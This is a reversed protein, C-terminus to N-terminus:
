LIMSSKLMHIRLSIAWFFFFQFVQNISNITVWLKPVFYTEAIKISRRSSCLAHTVNEPLSVFEANCFSFIFFIRIVFKFYVWFFEEGLFENLRFRASLVIEKTLFDKFLLKTLAQIPFKFQLAQQHLPKLYIQERLFTELCIFSESKAADSWSSIVFNQGLKERRKLDQLRFFSSPFSFIKGQVGYGDNMTRALLFSFYYAIANLMSRQWCRKATTKRESCLFVILSLFLFPFSFFDGPTAGFIPQRDRKMRDITQQQKWLCCVLERAVLFWSSSVALAVWNDDHYMLPYRFLRFLTWISDWRFHKSRLLVRPRRLTDKLWSCCHRLLWRRFIFGEGKEHKEDVQIQIWIWHAM